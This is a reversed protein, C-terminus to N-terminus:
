DTDANGGSPPNPNADGANGPLSGGDVPSSAINGGQTNSPDGGSVGGQRLETPNALVSPDDIQSQVREEERAELAEESNEFESGGSGEHNEHLEM